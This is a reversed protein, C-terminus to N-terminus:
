TRELELTRPFLLNSELHVHKFLDRELAGLGEYLALWSACAKEPPLYDRTVHRMRRLLHGLQEHERMMVHIPGRANEISGFRRGSGTRSSDVLAEIYPFLIREEKLLHPRLEAGVAQLLDRLTELEPHEIGHASLVQDALADLKTLAYRTYAHHQDVIHKTLADLPERAWDPGVGREQEARALQILKSLTADLDVGVDACADALSAAGFCGYDIHLSEFLRTAGPTRLAVDALSTTPEIRVFNAPGRAGLDDRRGAAGSSSSPKSVPGEKSGALPEGGLM